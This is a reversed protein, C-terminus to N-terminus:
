KVLRVVLTQVGSFIRVVYMGAPLENTNIQNMGEVFTGSYISKGNLDTMVFTAEVAHNWLINIVESFPNPYISVSNSAENLSACADVTITVEDTDTCENAATVTVTYTTTTTPSVSAGNAVGNSWTYSDGGSANLIASQGVCITSNAGANATPLALVTVLVSDLNSCNNADIGEVTYYTTSSPVFAVGNQINEVWTLTPAGTANLTVSGGDCVSIAEGANVTPLPNVTVLISDQAECGQLDYGTVTYYGTTTPSYDDGNSEGNEWGYTDAGSANLVISEGLCIAVDEGAFVVPSPLVTILISDTGQCQFGDVGVVTLYGTTTPIFSTGNNVGNEWTYTEAGSANLSVSIGECVTVDEGPNFVLFANVTVTVTDRNVCDNDDVGTLIYDATASPVFSQGDIVNDSWSYSIANGSANLTAINGQCVAFDNGANVVPLPLLSVSLTTTAALDTNDPTFTYTANTNFNLAPSWTGSIGNTSQTPLTFPVGQCVPTFPDFTPIQKPAFGVGKLIKTTFTFLTVINPVDVNITENYGALDNLKLLSNSLQAGNGSTVYLNFGAVSNKEAALGFGGFNTTYTGNAEWNGAVLSYKYITGVSNSAAESIYLVDFASGNMGSQVMYFDTMNGNGNPLGPLTSIFGGVQSSVTSVPTTVNTSRFVYVSDGFARISRFNGVPSPATADNTYIGSQDAFYWNINDKTTASRTQQGSSNTTYTSPIVVQGLQNLTVVARPNLTNANGSPQDLNVGTFTFLSGDRSSSAYLTSTASGSVRIANAGTGDIQINQIATQLATTKDLEVLGVTTNNASADAYIVVLNGPTLSTQATTVAHFSILGCFSLFTAIKKMQKKMSKNNTLLSRKLFGKV